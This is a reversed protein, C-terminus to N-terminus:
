SKQRWGAPRLRLPQSLTSSHLLSPLMSFFLCSLFLPSCLSLPSPQTESLPLSPAPCPGCLRFGLAHSWSFTEPWSLSIQFSSLGPLSVQPLPFPTLQSLAGIGVPQTTQELIKV